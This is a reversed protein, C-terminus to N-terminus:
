ACQIQFVPYKLYFKQCYRILTEVLFGTCNHNYNKTAAKTKETHKFKLQKLQLQLM